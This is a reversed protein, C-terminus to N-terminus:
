KVTKTVSSRTNRVSIKSQFEFRDGDSVHLSQLTKQPHNLLIPMDGNLFNRAIYFVRMSNSSIGTLQEAKTKLSQMTLTLKVQLSKKLGTEECTLEVLAHKKPTLDVEALQEVHGHIGVLTDYIAPKTQQLQYFRLFFRESEERRDHSLVSGNLTKLRPLRGVVLHHRQEDAMGEFLPINRIRLDELASFVSLSEVAEWDQFNCGNLCLSRVSAFLESNTGSSRAPSVQTFGNNGIILRVCKPFYQLINMADEWQDFRCNSVNLVNVNSSISAKEHASGASRLDNDALHLEELAPMRSLLKRLSGMSPCNGNLVLATLKSCLPFNCEAEAPLPNRSINFTKVSPLHELLDAITNWSCIRNYSLDVEIVRRLHTALQNLNGSANIRMSNLVVLELARASAMDCPSTGFMIVTNGRDCDADSLYKKEIEELVTIEEENSENDSSTESSSENLGTIVPDSTQRVDLALCANPGEM